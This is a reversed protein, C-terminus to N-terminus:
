NESVATKNKKDANNSFKLFLSRLWLYGRKYIHIHSAFSLYDSCLTILMTGLHLSARISAINKQLMKEAHKSRAASDKIACRLENISSIKSYNSKKM